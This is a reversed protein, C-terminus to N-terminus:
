VLKPGATAEMGSKTEATKTTKTPSCRQVRGPKRQGTPSGSWHQLLPHLPAGPEKSALDGVSDDCLAGSEWSESTGLVAVRQLCSAPTPAFVGNRQLGFPLSNMVHGYLMPRPSWTVHADTVSLTTPSVAVCCTKRQQSRIIVHEGYSIGPKPLFDYHGFRRGFVGRVQPQNLRKLDTLKMSWFGTVRSAPINGVRHGLGICLTRAPNEHWHSQRSWRQKTHPLCETLWNQIGLANILM